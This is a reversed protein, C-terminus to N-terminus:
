ILHEENIFDDMEIIFSDSLYGALKEAVTSKGSGGFGDIAIIYSGDKPPLKHILKLTTNIEM